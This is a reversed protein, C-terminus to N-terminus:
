IRVALRIFEIESDDFEATRVAAKDRYSITILTGEYSVIEGKIETLKGVPHKLRVFVYPNTMQKLENLDHIEREAGPSCVELTYAIDLTDCQDLAESLKESVAACTDLDMTGDQKTIAIQLTRENGLWKLEYLKVECAELEPLILEKIKDLSEM